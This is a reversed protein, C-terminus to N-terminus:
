RKESSGFSNEIPEDYQLDIVRVGYSAILEADDCIESVTGSEDEYYILNPRLVPFFDDIYDPEGMFYEPYIMFCLVIEGGDETTCVRIIDGDVHEKFHGKWSRYHTGELTWGIGDYECVYVCDLTKVEGNVEYTVSVDFEGTKIEPRPVSLGCGTLAAVLVCLLLLIGLKRKKM